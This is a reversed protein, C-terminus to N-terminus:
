ELPQCNPCYYVNGGLYAERRIKGGCVPCPQDKTKASLITRYGGSCGFLDRETDRGGKLTMELLTQTVAHYLRPFDESTLTNM